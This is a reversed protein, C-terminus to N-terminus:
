RHPARVRGAGAGPLSALRPPLPLSRPLLAHLPAPHAHRLALQLPPTARRTMASRIPGGPAGIWAHADPWARAVLLGIPRIRGLASQRLRSDSRRESMRAPCGAADLIPRDWRRRRADSAPCRGCAVGAPPSETGAKSIRRLWAAVRRRPAANSGLRRSYSGRRPPRVPPAFSYVLRGNRLMLAKSGGLGNRDGVHTVMRTCRLACTRRVHYTQCVGGDHDHYVMGARDFCNTCSSAPHM